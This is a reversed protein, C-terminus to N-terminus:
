SGVGEGESEKLNLESEIEHVSQREGRIVGNRQNGNSGCRFM